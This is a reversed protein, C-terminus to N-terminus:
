ADTIKDLEKKSKCSYIEGKFKVAFSDKCMGMCKSKKIKYDIKLEKAWDKIKKYSDSKQCSKGKCVQLKKGM